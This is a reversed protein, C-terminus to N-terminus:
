KGRDDSYRLVISEGHGTFWREISGNPFVIEKMEMMRIGSMKQLEITLWDFGARYDKEFDNM